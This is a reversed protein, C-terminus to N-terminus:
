PSIAIRQLDCFMHRNLSSVLTIHTFATFTPATIYAYPSTKRPSNALKAISDENLTYSNNIILELRRLYHQRRQKYIVFGDHGENLETIAPTTQLMEEQLLTFKRCYFYYPLHAAILSNWILKSVNLIYIEYYCVNVRRNYWGRFYVSNNDIFLTYLSKFWNLAPNVECLSITGNRLKKKLSICNWFIETTFSFICSIVPRIRSVNPLPSSHLKIPIM